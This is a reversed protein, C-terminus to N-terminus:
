ANAEAELKALRDALRKADKEAKEKAKRLEALKKTKASNAQKEADRAAKEQQKVLEREYRTLQQRKEKIGQTLSAVREKAEELDNEWGSLEARLSNLGEDDMDSSIVARKKRPKENKWGLSDLLSQPIRSQQGRGGLEAGGDKLAKKKEPNSLWAVSYGLYEAAEKLSFYQEDAMVTM